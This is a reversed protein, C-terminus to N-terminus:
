RFIFYDALVAWFDRVALESEIEWWDGDEGGANLLALRCHRLIEQRGMPTPLLEVKILQSEARDKTACGLAADWDEGIAAAWHALDALVEILLAEEDDRDGNVLWAYKDMLMATRGARDTETTTM